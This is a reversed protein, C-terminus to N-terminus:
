LMSIDMFRCVIIIESVAKLVNSHNAIVAVRLELQAVVQAMVQKRIESRPQKKHDQPSAVQTREAHRM